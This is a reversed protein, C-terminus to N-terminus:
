EYLNHIKIYKLVDFPVIKSLETTNDQKILDRVKTSSVGPIIPGEADPHEYGFRGLIFPPAMDFIEKLDNDKWLHQNKLIDAGIALRLESDPYIKKFEKVTNLTFSPIPLKKEIDSIIVNPIFGTAINVMNFRHQFDILKKGSPSDFCPIVFIKDFDCVAALYHIALVHSIHIPDFSGGFLCYKM